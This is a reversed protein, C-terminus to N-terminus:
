GFTNCFLQKAKQYEEMNYNYYNYLYCKPVKYKDEDKCSLLSAYFAQHGIIDEPTLETFQIKTNKNDM